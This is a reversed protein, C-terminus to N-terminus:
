EEGGRGKFVERSEYVGLIFLVTEQHHISKNVLIL